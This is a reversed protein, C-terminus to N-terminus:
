DQFDPKRKEAFARAAEARDPSTALAVTQLQEYRYGEHLPMEETVNFSRKAARVAMPSKTAIERAIGLATPMLQESPVCASVVNMRLLEPGSIRRATFMLLRADSESFFRRVHRVGGALGWDVETMSVWADESAVLIDCCLALALGAGIAPGNIACVVPKECEMVAEFAARVMRNHRPFAGPLAPDPRDKLDAGASFSRGSGTLVVSRVDRMDHLADFVRILEERFRTNQANVPPRNITVTAVREALAVSLTELDAFPDM